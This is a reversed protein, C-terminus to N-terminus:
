LIEFKAMIPNHDSILKDKQIDIIGSEILKLKKNYYCHDVITNGKINTIGNLKVHNYAGLLKFPEHNWKRVIETIDKDTKESFYQQQSELSDSPHISNFDGIIIDPNEKLVKRLLDVKYEIIKPDKVLTNDDFQGGILHVNAIKIGSINCILASRNHYIDSKNKIKKCIVRDNKTYVGNINFGSGASDQLKYKGISKSLGNEQTLLVDPAAKNIVSSILNFDPCGGSMLNASVIKISKSPTNIKISKNPTNIKISKNPNLLEAAGIKPQNNRYSVMSILLVLLLLIITIM